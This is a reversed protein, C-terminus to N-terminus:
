AQSLAVTWVLWAVLGIALLTCGQARAGNRCLGVLGGIFGVLPCIFSFIAMTVFAGTSFPNEEASKTAEIQQLDFHDAVPSM